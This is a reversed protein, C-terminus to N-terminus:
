KTKNKGGKRLYTYIFSRKCDLLHTRLKNIGEGNKKSSTAKNLPRYNESLLLNIESVLYFANDCSRGSQYRYLIGNCFLQLCMHRLNLTSFKTTVLNAFQFKLIGLSLKLIKAGGWTCLTEHSSRGQISCPTTARKMLLTVKTDFLAFTNTQLVRVCTNTCCIHQYHGTIPQKEVLWPAQLLHSWLYNGILYSINM